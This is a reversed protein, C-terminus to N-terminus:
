PSVATVVLNDRHIVEAYAPRGLIKEFQSSRQGMIQRIAESSYNSLGRAIDQGKPDRVMLLEGRDFLGTVATIGTALLSKGRQSVAEAAGADVTVTGAPRKTLGIWRRRSDLKRAAPAFVTGLRQGDLLRVLINEQRGNAIVLVAGAQTVLRAADLKSTIGGSGWQTKKDRALAAALSAPM